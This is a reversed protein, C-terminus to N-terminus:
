GGPRYVTGDSSVHVWDYGAAMRLLTRPTTTGRAAPVAHCIVADPPLRRFGM